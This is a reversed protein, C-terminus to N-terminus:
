AGVLLYSFPLPLVTIYDAVLSGSAQEGLYSYHDFPCLLSQFVTQNLLDTGVLTVFETEEVHFEYFPM